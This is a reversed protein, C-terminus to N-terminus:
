DYKILDKSINERIAFLGDVNSAVNKFMKEKDTPVGRKAGKEYIAEDPLVGKYGHKETIDAVDGSSSDVSTLLYSALVADFDVGNLKLDRKLLAVCYAKLDYTM